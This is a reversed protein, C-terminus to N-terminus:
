LVSPTLLGLTLLVRSCVSVGSVRAAPQDPKVPRSSILECLAHAGASQIGEDSGYREMVVVVPRSCHEFVYDVLSPFTRLRALEGVLRVCPLLVSRHSLLLSLALVVAKVEAFNTNDVSLRGPECGCLSHLLTFSSSLLAETAIDVTM